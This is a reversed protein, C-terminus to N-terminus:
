VVIYGRKRCVAIVNCWIWNVCKIPTFPRYLLLINSIRRPFHRKSAINLISVVVNLYKICVNDAFFVRVRWFPRLVANFVGFGGFRRM